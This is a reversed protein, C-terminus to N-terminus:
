WRTSRPPLKDVDSADETGGVRQDGSRPFAHTGAACSTGPGVAFRRDRNGETIRVRCIDGARVEDIEKTANAQVEVIRGIREKKGRTVNLLTDGKKDRGFLHPLLDAHRVPRQDGQLGARRRRTESIGQEGTINETRTWWHIGGNEGPYPLYDVVADLLQKVGKNKIPRAASCRCSSARFHLGQSHM